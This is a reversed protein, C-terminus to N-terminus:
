RGINTMTGEIEYRFSQRHAADIISARAYGYLM